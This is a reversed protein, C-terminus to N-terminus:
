PRYPLVLPRALGHGHRLLRADVHRARWCRHWHPDLEAVLQELRPQSTEWLSGLAHLRAQDNISLEAADVEFLERLDRAEAAAGTLEAHASSGDPATSVGHDLLEVMADAWRGMGLAYPVSRDDRGGLEESAPRAREERLTAEALRTSRASVLGAATLAACLAVLLLARGLEAVEIGGLALVLNSVALVLAAALWLSMSEGVVPM